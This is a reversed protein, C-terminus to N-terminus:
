VYKSPYNSISHPKSPHAPTQGCHKRLRSIYYNFKGFSIANAQCFQEQSLGSHQQKDVMAQWYAYREEKNM